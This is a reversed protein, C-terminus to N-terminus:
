RKGVLKLKELMEWVKVKLLLPSNKWNRANKTQIHYFVIIQIKNQLHYSHRLLGGPYCEPSLQSYQIPLNMFSKMQKYESRLPIPDIYRIKQSPKEFLGVKSWEFFVAMHNDTGVRVIFSNEEGGGDLLVLGKDNTHGVASIGYAGPLEMGGQGMPPNVSTHAIHRINGIVKGFGPFSTFDAPNQFFDGSVAIIQFAYIGMIGAALGIMAVMMSQATGYRLNKGSIVDAHGGM